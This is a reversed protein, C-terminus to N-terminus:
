MKLPYFPPSHKSKREDIQRNMKKIKDCRVKFLFRISNTPLRMVQSRGSRNPLKKKLNTITGILNKALFISFIGRFISFHTVFQFHKKEIPNRISIRQLGKGANSIHIVKKKYINLTSKKQFSHTRLFYKLIERLISQAYLSSFITM